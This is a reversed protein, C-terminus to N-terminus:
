KGSAVYGAIGDQQTIRWQNNKGKPHGQLENVFQTTRVEVPKDGLTKSVGADPERMVARLRCSDGSRAESSLLQMKWRGNEM